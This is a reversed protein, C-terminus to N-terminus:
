KIKKLAEPEKPQHFGYRSPTYAAKVAALRGIKAAAKVM